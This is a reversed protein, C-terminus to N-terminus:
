EHLRLFLVFATFEIPPMINMYCFMGMTIENNM